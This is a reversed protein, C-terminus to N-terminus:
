ATNRAQFQQVAPCASPDNCCVDRIYEYYVNPQLNYEARLPCKLSIRPKTKRLGLILSQLHVQNRGAHCKMKRNLTRELESLNANFEEDSIRPIKASAELNSQLVRTVERDFRAQDVPFELFGKAGAQMAQMQLAGAGRGAVVIVPIVSGYDRMYRMLQLAEKKRPDLGVVILLPKVKLILKLGSRVDGTTVPEHHLSCMAELAKRIAPDSHVVVIRSDMPNDQSGRRNCATAVM